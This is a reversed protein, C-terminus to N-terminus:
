RSRRLCYSQLEEHSTKSAFKNFANRVNDLSPDDCVNENGFCGNSGEESGNIDFSAADDWKSDIEEDCRNPCLFSGDDTCNNYTLEGDASWLAHQRGTCFFLLRENDLPAGIDICTTRSDTVGCVIEVVTNRNNHNQEYGSPCSM